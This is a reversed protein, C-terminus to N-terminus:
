TNPDSAAAGTADADVRDAEENAQVALLRDVALPGSGTIILTSALGFLSIHALVPDDPLGFLTLTFMFLAVTASARTFLGIVLVVGLAAEALGTGVVWLGPDVPVVATLDYKAVVALAQEPALLKQTVGLFVFNLGLGVRVMTAVYREYPSLLANLRVAVRHVPDIRGYITDDAAAIESLVHDASPRGSGVLAVAALGPVFENALLLRPDFAVGTLYVGLGVLAAARTALGFLLLFGLGIQFLRSPTSLVPLLPPVSPSFLYGAFGAGVLPLGLSLRLLWPLLDRYSSVTRRFVAIDPAEPRVLLYGLVAVIIILGGGAVLAANVPESLVEVLFRLPAGRGEEDTVYDVHAAAPGSAATVAAAVALGIRRTHPSCAPGM